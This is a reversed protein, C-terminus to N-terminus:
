EGNGSCLSNIKLLRIGEEGHKWGSSLEGVRDIISARAGFLRRRIPSLAAEINERAEDHAMPGLERELSKCEGIAAFTLQTIERRVEPLLDVTEDTALVQCLAILKKTQTM